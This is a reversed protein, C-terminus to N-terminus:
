QNPAAASPTDIVIRSTPPLTSPGTRRGRMLARSSASAIVAPSSIQGALVRRPDAITSGLEFPESLAHCIAGEREVKAVALHEQGCERCFGLPLLTKDPSGPVSVQYTGTIHREAEPELSVYVTNGKSLFQHLRFAFVPRRSDPHVTASGERLVARLAAVCTARDLGTQEALREAADPVTTPM